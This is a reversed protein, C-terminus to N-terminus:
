HVATYTRVVSKIDGLNTIRNVNPGATFGGLTKLKTFACNDLCTVRLPTVVLKIDGNLTWKIKDQPLNDKDLYAKIIWFITTQYITTETLQGVKM